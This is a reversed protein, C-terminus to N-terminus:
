QAQSNENQKFIKEVYERNYNIITRPKILLKANVATRASMDIHIRFANYKPNFTNM